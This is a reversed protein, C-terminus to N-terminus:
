CQEMNARNSPRSLCHIVDARQPWALASTRSGYSAIPMMSRVQLGCPVCVKGRQCEIGLETAMAAIARSADQLITCKAYNRIMTERNGTLAAYFLAVLRMAVGFDSEPAKSPM